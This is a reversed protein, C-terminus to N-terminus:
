RSGGRPHSLTVCGRMRAANPTVDGLFKGKEQSTACDCVRYREEGYRQGLSELVNIVEQRGM